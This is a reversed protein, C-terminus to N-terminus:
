AWGQQIAFIVAQTRNEMNLKGLINSIHYRVTGESIVLESAIQSNSLGHAALKLVELEKKTLAPQESENEKTQRIEHLLQNTIEPPLFSKGLYVERIARLLEEPSSDKLLYGCAGAKLASFIKKEDPFSTLVLIRVKQNAKWIEAIAELGSKKPMELDMLIVDPNNTQSLQVAELGDRADGVVEMDPKTELMSRLGHRVIPHDDVILVRIKKAM